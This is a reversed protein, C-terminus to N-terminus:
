RQGGFIGNFINGLAKFPNQFRPDNEYGSPPKQYTPRGWQDYQPQSACSPPQPRNKPVSCDNGQRDVCEVIYLTKFHKMVPQSTKKDIKPTGDPNLDPVNPESEYPFQLSQGGVDKQGEGESIMQAIQETYGPHRGTRDTWGTTRALAQRRCADLEPGDKRNESPCRGKFDPDNQIEDDTPKRGSWFVLKFIEKADPEAMRVCGHSAPTGLVHETGGPARHTAIGGNFFVAYKMWADDFARSHHDIDLSEPVYYGTPTHRWIPYLSGTPNGADDKAQECVWDEVGTSVKATKIREGFRYVAALQVDPAKNILVINDYTKGWKRLEETTVHIGTVETAPAVKNDNAPAKVPSKPAPRAPQVEAGSDEGGAVDPRGSGDEMDMSTQASASMSFLLFITGIVISLSKM